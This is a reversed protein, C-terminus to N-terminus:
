SASGGGVVNERVTIFQVRRRPVTMRRTEVLGNRLHLDDGDLTLRYGGSRYVEALAAALPTVVLLGVVTAVM